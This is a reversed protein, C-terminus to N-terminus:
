LFDQHFLIRGYFNNDSDMWQTGLRVKQYPMSRELIDNSKLELTLREDLFAASVGANLAWVQGNLYVVSGFPAGTLVPTNGDVTSILPLSLILDHASLVVRSNMIEKLNNYIFKGDKMVISPKQASVVVEDLLQDKRRLRINLCTTDGSLLTYDPTLHSNISENVYGPYSVLVSWQISNPTNIKMIGDMDTISSSFFTSDPMTLCVGAAGEISDDDEDVVRVKINGAYLCTASYCIM